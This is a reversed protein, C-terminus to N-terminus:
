YLVEEPLFVPITSHKFDKKNRTIIGDIGKISAACQFQVADEYDNFKTAAATILMEKTISTVEVQSVFNVVVEVALKNSVKKKLVYHANIFSIDSVYFQWNNEDAKKFLRRVTNNFPQRNLFNDLLVNTDLFYKM